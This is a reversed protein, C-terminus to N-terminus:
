DHRQSGEVLALERLRATIVSLKGVLHIRRAKAM